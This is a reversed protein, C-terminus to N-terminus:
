IASVNVFKVKGPIILAGSTITVEVRTRDSVDTWISPFRWTKRSGRKENEHSGDKEM